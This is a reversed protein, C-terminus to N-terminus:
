DSLEKFKQDGICKECYPCIWDLSMYKAPKGCICCTKLSLNEYKKIIKNIHSEKPFGYDRWRLEAYKEKVQVLKYKYLYGHKVLEDRIEDCMQIGFAIRWGPKMDDLFTWQYDDDCKLFPYKKVM